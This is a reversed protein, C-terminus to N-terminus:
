SLAGVVAVVTQIITGAAKAAQMVGNVVAGVDPAASIDYYWTYGSQLDAWVSQITNNIGTSSWSWNNNDWPLGADIFGTTTFVLATGKSSVVVLAVAMDYPLWNSNNDKGTFSYTGDPAMTLSVSGAINGNAPGNINTNFSISINGPPSNTSSSFSFKQWTGVSTADTHVPQTNPGGVGGGDVATLYRGGLLPVATFPMIQVTPPNVSDNVLLTFIEWAGATTADTHVPCTADNPGGVGGGNIATLYNTGTSTQLAFQMGPGLTSGPQLILKFTEWAGASTADTHLAVLGAGSDPGGLGGGNVATLMNKGNATLINGIYTKM